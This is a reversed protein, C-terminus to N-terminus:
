KNEIAYQILSYTLSKLVWPESFSSESQNSKDSSSASLDDESMMQLWLKYDYNTTMMKLWWKYDDKATMMQLWWKCVDNSTM